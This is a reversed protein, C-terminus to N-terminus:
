EERLSLLPPHKLIHRLGAWGGILACLIGGVTGLLWLYWSLQFEFEFVQRALVWSILAAGSAALLGAVGGILSYEIWQAKSLQRESAGLARLLSVERLRQQQSSQLAAYLVLLGCALTFLFLFEVASIIKNLMEELQRLIIGTDIITLNPFQRSLTPVLSTNNAPLHFATIWTQPLDAASHPDIIVFFNVQMSGWNLKRLSTITVDIQQGGIDFRLQDGLKLHLSKAIGEEVSAEPRAESSNSDHFWQGSVLRNHSQMQEMTSLNFEREILRKASESEYNKADAPVRNVTVLRGRIMPYLQPNNVHHQTLLSAVQDKQEPLINVIFQNPANDPTSQRWASLLDARIVTLLLIAMLGLAVSVVQIISSMSGRQLSNIAFRWASFPFLDRLSRIFRLFLWACGSFVVFGSLFYFLTYEALTFNGTQLFILIAFIFVGIFYAFLTHAKPSGTERRVMLNHPVNRLQLIPTIAFGVLLLLGLAVGYLAPLFSPAPLSNTIFNGLWILLVLHGFYGVAAGLVSAVLGLLVFEILYLVTVQTQTLGLCRLMACSNTHRLMFRRSALAIALAALMTSLLSVLSLFQKAKELAASMEPRGSELSELTIGNLLHNELKAELLRKADSVQKATGSLLIRYTVRSGPQILHTAALDSMAIMVRPAFNLFVSGRDSEHQIIHGVTFLQDGLILKQGLEINLATLVDRDVWVTGPAPIGHQVVGTEVALNGRLPYEDSVAKVSVLRSQSEDAVKANSTAMSAFSATDARKLDKILPRLQETLNETLPADSNLVLDAGLLQNADRQLGNSVRDVFFGVSSLSGVAIVLAILLFRLEGARWDRLTMRLSQKLM